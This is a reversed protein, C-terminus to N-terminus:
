RSDYGKPYTGRGESLRAARFVPEDRGPLYVIFTGLRGTPKLRAAEHEESSAGCMEDDWEYIWGCREPSWFYPEFEHDTLPWDYSM